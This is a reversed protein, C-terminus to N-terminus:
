SKEKKREKKWKAKDVKTWSEVVHRSLESEIDRGTKKKKEKAAPINKNRAKHEESEKATLGPETNFIEQIILDRNKDEAILDIITNIKRKNVLSDSFTEPIHIGRSATTIAASLAALPSSAGGEQVAINFIEEPEPCLDSLVVAMPLITEPLNVSGRTIENTKKKDAASCIMKEYEAPNGSSNLNKFLKLLSESDEIIYDPNHGSEFIKQQNKIIRDRTKEASILATKLIQRDKVEILDKILQLLIASCAITTSSKTYLSIYKVATILHEDENKVLLISLVPPLIRSCSLSFHHGENEGARVRSIFNKEAPGPDRFIGYEAGSVDPSNQVTNVYESLNLGRRDVCAATILINQSISSYLGPKRWRQMNGKLGPAPDTYGSIEKFVAKIHNKKMGNFSYGAADGIISSFLIDAVIRSM